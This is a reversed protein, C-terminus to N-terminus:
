MSLQWYLRSMHTMFRQFHDERNELLSCEYSTYRTRPVAPRDDEAPMAECYIVYFLHYRGHWKYYSHEIDLGGIRDMMYVWEEAADLLRDEFSM